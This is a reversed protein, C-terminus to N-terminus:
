PDRTSEFALNSPREPDQGKPKRTGDPETTRMIELTGPKSSRLLYILVYFCSAFVAALVYHIPMPPKTLVYCTHVYMCVYICVYMCVCMCVYVCM